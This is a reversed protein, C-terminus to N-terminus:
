AIKRTVSYRYRAAAAAATAFHEDTVEEPAEERAHKDDIESLDVTVEVTGDPNVTVTVPAGTTWSVPGAPQPAGRQVWTWAALLLDRQYRRAMSQGLRTAAAALGAVIADTLAVVEVEAGEALLAFTARQEASLFRVSANAIAAAKAYAILVSDHVGAPDLAGYGTLRAPNVTTPISVTTTTM